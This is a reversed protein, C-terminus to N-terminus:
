RLGQDDRRWDQDLNVVEYISAQVCADKDGQQAIDFHAGVLDLLDGSGVVGPDTLQTISRWESMPNTSAATMAM